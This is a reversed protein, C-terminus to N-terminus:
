EDLRKYHNEIKKLSVLIHPQEPPTFYELGEQDIDPSFYLKGWKKVVWGRIGRPIIGYKKSKFADTDLINSNRLRLLSHSEYSRCDKTIEVRYLKKEDFIM